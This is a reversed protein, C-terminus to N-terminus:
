ETPAHHGPVHDHIDHHALTDPSCIFRTAPDDPALRLVAEPVPRKPSAVKMLALGAALGVALGAPAWPEGWIAAVAFAAVMMFLVPIGYVLFAIYVARGGTIEIMVDDGQVANCKNLVKITSIRGSGTSCVGKASCSSCASARGVEVVAETGNTSIVRGLEIIREPNM